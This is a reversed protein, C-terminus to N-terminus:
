SQLRGEEAMGKPNLKGNHIASAITQYIYKSLPFIPASISLNYLTLNQQPIVGDPIFPSKQHM